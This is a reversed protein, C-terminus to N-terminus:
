VRDRQLERDINDYEEDDMQREVRREFEKESIEGNLYQQQLDNGATTGTEENSSAGIDPMSLGDNTERNTTGSEESGSVGSVLSYLKYGGYGLGGLLGLVALAKVAFLVLSVIALITKVVFGVVLLALLGTVAYLILKGTKM